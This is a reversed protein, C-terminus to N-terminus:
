SREFGNKESGRPCAQGLISWTIGRIDSWTPVREYRGYGSAAEPAGRIFIVSEGVEGFLFGGTEQGSDGVYFGRMDEDVNNVAIITPRGPAPGVGRVVFASRRHFTHIRWRIRV